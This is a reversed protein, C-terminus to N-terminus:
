RYMLLYMLGVPFQGPCCTGEFSPQVFQVENRWVQLTWGEVGSRQRKEQLMTMGPGRKKWM